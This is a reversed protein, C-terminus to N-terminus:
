CSGPDARLTDSRRSGRARRRSQPTRMLPTEGWISLCWSSRVVTQVFFAHWKECRAETMRSINWCTSCIILDFMRSDFTLNTLDMQRAAGPDYLDITAHSLNPLRALIERIPPEPAVHLIKSRRQTLRLQNKLHLWLFRHRELSGCGPCRAHRRQNLGFPLFGRYWSNCIPCHFRAGAVAKRVRNDGYAGAGYISAAPTEERNIRLLQRHLHNLM